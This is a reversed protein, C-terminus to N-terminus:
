GEDPEDLLEGECGGLAGDPEPPLKSCTEIV